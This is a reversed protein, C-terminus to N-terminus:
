LLLLHSTSSKGLLHWLRSHYDIDALIFRLMGWIYYALEGLPVRHTIHQM